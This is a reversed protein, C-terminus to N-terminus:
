NGVKPHPMFVVKYLKQNPGKPIKPKLVQTDQHSSCTCEDDERQSGADGESREWQVEQCLEHQKTIHLTGGELVIM